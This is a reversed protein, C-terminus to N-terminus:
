PGVAFLVLWEGAGGGTFGTLDGATQATVKSVLHTGAVTEFFDANAVPLNEMVAVEGTSADALRIHSNPYGMKFAGLRDCGVWRFVMLEEALKVKGPMPEEAPWSM